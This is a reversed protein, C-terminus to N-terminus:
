KISWFARTVKNCLIYYDKEAAAKNAEVDLLELTGTFDEIQDSFFRTYSLKSGDPSWKPYMCYTGEISRTLTYIGGTELNVDKVRINGDGSAFAIWQGDPSIVPSYIGNTNLTFKRTGGGIEEILLESEEGTNTAYILNKGDESWDIDPCTQFGNEPITLQFESVIELEGGLGPDEVIATKVTIPGVQNEREAWTLYKSDPSFRPIFEIFFNETISVATVGNFEQYYLTDGTNFVAWNGDRSLVAKNSSPFTKNEIWPKALAGGKYDIFQISDRGDDSKRLFILKEDITPSSFLLGNPVVKEFKMGDMSIGYIGPEEDILPKASFYIDRLEKKIPEGSDCQDCGSFVINVFFLYTLIKLTRLFRKNNKYFILNERRTNDFNKKLKM